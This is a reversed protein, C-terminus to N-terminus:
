KGYKRTNVQLDLDPSRMLPPVDNEPNREGESSVVCRGHKGPVGDAQNWKSLESQSSVLKLAFLSFQSGQDEIKTADDHEKNKRASFYRWM